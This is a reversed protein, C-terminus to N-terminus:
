RQWGKVIDPSFNSRSFELRDVLKLANKGVHDIAVYGEHGVVRYGKPTLVLTNISKARNLKSVIILKVDILLNYIKFLNILQQPPTNSFYSVVDDRTQRIKAQGAETKRSDEQKKYHDIIHQVM